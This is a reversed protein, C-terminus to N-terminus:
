AKEDLKQFLTAGVSAEELSPTELAAFYDLLLRHIFIYGGGVKCLLIREATYDLFQAYCWPVSKTRWLLFRLIYHQLFALGGDLLGVLLGGSLGALL